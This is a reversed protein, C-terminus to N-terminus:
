NQKPRRPRVLFIPSSGGRLVRDAVSGYAWRFIGSRGYTAMVILSFHHRNSYKIIEEAPNGMLVKSKVKLGVTESIQNAIRELYQKTGLKCWAITQEVHEEWSIPMVAEPYDSSITPQECVGLLIIDIPVTGRQKALIEVHPIVSEATRSGDLPVILTKNPWKDYAIENSVETRVLLVPVRSARLVKDAVSGLRWRKLGSYGHTAMIIFDVRHNNAYNLIEEAPYGVVLEGKTNIPKFKAPLSTTMQIEMAQNAITEAIHEIYIRHMAKFAEEDPTCIRLITIDLDLRGALEKAYPLVLEALQTGDLPILIKKYM